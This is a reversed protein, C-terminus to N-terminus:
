SLYAYFIYVDNNEKCYNLFQAQSAGLMGSFVSKCKIPDQLELLMDFLDEVQEFEEREAMQKANLKKTM